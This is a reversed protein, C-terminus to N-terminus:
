LLANRRARSRRCYDKSTFSGRPVRVYRDLRHRGYGRRALVAAGHGDRGVAAARPRLTARSRRVGPSDINCVIQIIVPYRKEYIRHNECIKVLLVLKYIGRIVLSYSEHWSKRRRVKESDTDHRCDCGAPTTQQADDVVRFSGGLSSPSYPPLNQPM